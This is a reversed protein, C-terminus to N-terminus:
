LLRTSTSAANCNIDSNEAGWGGLPPATNAIILCVFTQPIECRGETLSLQSAAKDPSGSLANPPTNTHLPVISLDVASAMLSINKSTNIAGEKSSSANLTRREFFFRM